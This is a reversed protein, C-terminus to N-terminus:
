FFFVFFFSLSLLIHQSATEAPQKTAKNHGEEEERRWIVDTQEEKRGQIFM